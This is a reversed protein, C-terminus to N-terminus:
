DRLINERHFTRVAEMQEACLRIHSRCERIRAVAEDATIGHKQMLYCAVVTTSRGRGAKCHVYVSKGTAAIEDIFAIGKHINEQTPARFFDVTSLQRQTINRASWEEASLMTHRIEFNENMSLVGGIDEMTLDPLFTRLPLAGLVVRNDIRDFWRRTECRNVYNFLLSPYFFVRSYIKAFLELFIGPM